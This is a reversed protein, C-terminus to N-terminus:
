NELEYAKIPNNYKWDFPIETGIRQSQVHKGEKGPAINAEGLKLYFFAATYFARRSPLEPPVGVVLGQVKLQSCTLVLKAADIGHIMNATAEGNPITRGNTFFKAPHREFGFLGGLRVISAKPFYSFAIEEQHQIRKAKENTMRPPAESYESVLGDGEFAGTSSVWTLHAISHKSLSKMFDVLQDINWKSSPIAVIIAKGNVEKPVEEGINWKLSQETGKTTSGDFEIGEQQAQEQMLNGLWGKGFCFTQSM